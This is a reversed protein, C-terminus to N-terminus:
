YYFLKIKILRYNKLATKKPNPPDLQPNLPLIIEFYGGIGKYFSNSINKLLLKLVVFCLLFLGNEFLKLIVSGFIGM